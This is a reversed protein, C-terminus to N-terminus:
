ILKSSIEDLIKLEIVQQIREFLEREEMRIHKELIYGLDNLLEKINSNTKLKTILSKIEIHEKYMQEFLMDILEDKGKLYKMLINEEDNFHKILYNEFFNITYEKKGYLDSPMGKYQPADKKIMQALILGDHHEKSLRVLSKHRKM